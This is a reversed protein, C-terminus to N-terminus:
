VFGKMTIGKLGIRGSAGTIKQVHWSSYSELAFPLQSDTVRKGDKRRLLTGTEAEFEARRMAVYDMSVPLASDSKIFGWNLFADFPNGELAMQALVEAAGEVVLWKERSEAMELRIAAEVLRRAIGPLEEQLKRPLDDDRNSAFSNRFPLVILKSSVAGADDPFSPMPNSQLIPFCKFTIGKLQRIHKINVSSTDRGLVIKLITSFKSGDGRDLDRVESTVWVQSNHLGDMGFNGVLQDMTTSFYAPPRLLKGLVDNTGSGKGSQTKGQELLAKGYKRTTMLAYGYARERNEQWKPDGKSWQNQSNVWTPCQADMMFPVSLVSGTFFAETRPITVVVGVDGEKRRLASGRIDVLCDQFTICHDPDPLGETHALWRPMTSIPAQCVREIIWVVERFDRGSLRDTARVFSTNGQSDTGEVILADELWEIVSREIERKPRASWVGANWVWFDEGLIWLGQNGGETRFLSNIAQRAVTTHDAGKLIPRTESVTTM